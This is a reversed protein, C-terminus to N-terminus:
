NNIKYLSAPANNRVVLLRTGRGSQVIKLDRIDGSLGLNDNKLVLEGDQFSVLNGKSADMKGLSVRFPFFNGAAIVEKKGDEDFDSFVFKNIVSSQLQNPLERIEFNLNGTNEILVSKLNTIELKTYPTVGADKLIDQTTARAYKDYSTYIKKLSTVQRFMEDRSFIPFEEENYCSFIPDIEGDQDIDQIYYRMPKEKSAKLQSNEGMNGLILDIDGDNDFDDALVSRWWGSISDLKEIGLLELQGKKNLFIKPSMWEGVIILDEWSDDNLDKWIADTVMGLGKFLDPNVPELLISDKTSNNKLLFSDPSLPYNKAQLRGGIFIDIDGDHDYDSTTIAEGSINPLYGKFKEFKRNGQNIYLRDKYYTAGNKAENGGSVVYLDLDKDGDLDLMLSSIDENETDSNWPQPSSNKIFEGNENGFYLAGSHNKAGGFYIDDYGDGDIDGVSAKGGLRSLQYPLLGQYNFDIYDNETHTFNIGAERTIDTLLQEAPQNKSSRRPIAHSQHFTISTDTQVNIKESISGGPWIVQIKEIKSIEGLGITMNPEVSSQYGRGYFAEQYIKKGKNLSLIVKSGIGFSNKNNGKLRIKIYHNNLLTEQTNKYVLVPANLNNVILDLDGDNDLDAYAAANSVTKKGLGLKESENIFKIGDKNRFFYNSVKTAPIKKILPLLDVEQNRAQASRIAENATYNRFDLNSYDRLFGNTIFLDKFGDNDFDALLPAWSWDTNSIGSLQGIESFKMVGDKDLGKNIQLTNRMYQYHYGSDVAKKFQNYRDPGQLVKQRYNDEPLMDAVFIDPLADNNIDAIDSGMGYKSLHGFAAHSEERFTGDGNNVYYFDQEEYDNTVYIDPFDDKNIDSISASLGFNIGSGHIGSGETVETFKNGNNQYLKNGFYPHRLKRLKKTNFFASYFKNAHNLLFMDLDGDLDYDFFYSQTSFTGIADLGYKKAQEEFMPKGETNNGQNIFLQNARGKYERIVPKDFGEQPANGSYSVYIDLKGDGNVDAMTVGTKWGNRGSVKAYSTIDEFEWNSKNLYLKNPVTNGSLYIDTLGDNNIDGVALGGGNYFYEYTMVNQQANERIRNEFHIGTKEASQEMFLTPEKPDKGCSILIILLTLFPLYKKM